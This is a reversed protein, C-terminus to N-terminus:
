VPVISYATVFSRVTMEVDCLEDASITVENTQRLVHGDEDVLYPTIDVTFDDDWPGGLESTVDDGNIEIAFDPDDAAPGLFIGFTLSHTHLPLDHHHAVSAVTTDANISHKHPSIDHTHSAETQTTDADITHSHSNGGSTLLAETPHSTGKRGIFFGFDTITSGNLSTFFQQEHSWTTMPQLNNTAAWQHWHFSEGNTTHFLISHSHASGGQSTPTGGNVTTSANITHTHVGGDETTEGGGAAAGKTNSKVRRKRVQLEALHLYTVREDYEIPLTADHTSDVSEVAPGAVEVYSFPKLSTQVAWMHDLTDALVDADTPVRQDVTSVTLRWANIDSSTFSREFGLIYVDTDVDIWVLTDGDADLTLGRYILRVKDGLEFQPSGNVMHQLNVVSVDYVSYPESHWSLWAAALDYLANAANEIESDSNSIPAVNPFSLPMVRTGHNTASTSDEIYYYTESDPGTASKITYPSTRSSHKLTLRNVGEGSGVPIVRNWLDKQEDSIVLKSIPVIGMDDEVHGTNQFILGSDDGFAGLDVTRALPDERLHWGFQQAAHGLAKWISVGEYHATLNISATETNASWDTGTLLTSAASAISTNSFRRGFLTNAWVLERAWGDGQIQLIHEGRESVTVKPTHVIGNFLEGEGERYLTMYTGSTIDRAVPLAAPVELTFTGIEDLGMSYSAKIIDVVPGSGIPDGEADKFDARLRYGQVEFGTLEFGFDPTVGIALDADMTDITAEISLSGTLTIALNTDLTDIDADVNIDGTADIAAEGDPVTTVNLNGTIGVSASAGTIDIAKYAFISLGSSTLTIAAEADPAVGIEVEGAVDIGLSGDTSLDAEINLDGNVDIGADGKTPHAVSLSGTIGISAEADMTPVTAVVTTDGDVGIPLDTSLDPSADLTATVTFSQDLANGAGDILRLYRTNEGNVLTTDNISSTTVEVGSTATGSALLTGGGGTATRVQYSIEGSDTSLADSPTFTITYSPM